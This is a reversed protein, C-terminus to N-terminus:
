PLARRADPGKAAPPQVEVLQCSAERVARPERVVLFLALTLPTVLPLLSSGMLSEM